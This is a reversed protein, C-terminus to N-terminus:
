DDRIAIFFQECLCGKTMLIQSNISFEVKIILNAQIGECIPIWPFSHASLHALLAKIYLSIVGEGMDIGVRM